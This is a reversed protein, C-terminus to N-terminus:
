VRVMLSYFYTSTLTYYLGIGRPVRILIINLYVICTNIVLLNGNKFQHEERLVSYLYAFIQVPLKM